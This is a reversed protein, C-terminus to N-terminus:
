KPNIALIMRKSLYWGLWAGLPAALIDVTYHVHQVLLLIALIISFIVLVWRVINQGVSFVLSLLTSMHGSFFLDKSIIRGDTTFFMQVVPERLPIYGLPPNLPLSTLTVVRMLMVLSYIQLTLLFYFPKKLNMYLGIAAGSYLIFFILWSVDRQPFLDLIPDPLVPGNRSELFDFFNPFTVGLVVIVAIVTIFQFRFGNSQWAKKWGTEPLPM